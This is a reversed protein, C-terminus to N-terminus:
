TASARASVTATITDSMKSSLADAAALSRPMWRLADM